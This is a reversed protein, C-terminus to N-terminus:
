HHQEELNQRVIQRHSFPFHFKQLFLEVFTQGLVKSPLKGAHPEQIKIRAPLAVLESETLELFHINSAIKENFCIPTIFITPNKIELIVNM